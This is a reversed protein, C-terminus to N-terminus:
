HYIYLYLKYVLTNQGSALYGCRAVVPASIYWRWSPKSYDWQGCLLMLSLSLSWFYCRTTVQFLFFCQLLLISHLYFSWSLLNPEHVDPDYPTLLFHSFKGIQDTGRVEHEMLPLKAVHFDEYL